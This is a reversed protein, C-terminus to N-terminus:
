FPLEPMPVLMVFSTNLKPSPAISAVNSRPLISSPKDQQRHLQPLAPRVKIDRHLLEGSHMYKLAKFMQYMIYQKHVEELINARIVAHLDTEMYEFILYLDKDNEAKM